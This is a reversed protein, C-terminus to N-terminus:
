LLNKTLLISNILIQLIYLVFIEFFSTLFISFLLIFFYNKEKINLIKLFKM